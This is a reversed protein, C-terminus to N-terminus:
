GLLLISCCALAPDIFRNRETAASWCYCVESRKMLYLVGQFTERQRGFFTCLQPVPSDRRLGIVFLKCHRPQVARYCLVIPLTSLLHASAGRIEISPFLLASTPAAWYAAM